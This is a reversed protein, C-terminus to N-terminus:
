CKGKKMDSCKLMRSQMSAGIKRRKVVSGNEDVSYDTTSDSTGGITEDYNKLRACARKASGNSRTAFPVKFPKSLRELADIM